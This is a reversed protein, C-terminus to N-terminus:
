PRHRARYRAARVRDGCRTSCWRRRNHDRILLRVCDPAACETLLKRREDSALAIADDAILALAGDLPAGPAEVREAVLAGRESRLRTSSPAAATTTALLDLSQDSPPREEILADLLERIAARLARVRKMAVRGLPLNPPAGARATLWRRMAGADELLDIPERPNAYGTNVLAVAVSQDDGPAPEIVGTMTSTQKLRSRTHAM